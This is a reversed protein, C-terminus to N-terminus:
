RFLDPNAAVVAAALERQGRLNPHASFPKRNGTPTIPNIWMGPGRERCMGHGVFRTGLGVFRFGQHRHVAQAITDDLLKGARNLLKADDTDIAGCGQIDKAPAFLQPYGLVIVTAEPARARIKWYTEDLKRGLDALKEGNRGFRESVAESCQYTLCKEVIKAFAMDNGGITLTILTTREPIHPIQLRLVEDTTDGQCALFWKPGSLREALQRGALLRSYAHRNRSCDKERGPPQGDFYHYEFALAQPASAPFYGDGGLGSSYSDGLAVFKPEAPKANKCRPAGRLFGDTFTKVTSDPIFGGRPLRVWIRSGRVKQGLTQCAIGVWQNDEVATGLSNGLAPKSQPSQAETSRYLHSARWRKHSWVHRPFPLECTPSGQLRSDTYTKFRSDPVFGGVVGVWLRRGASTDVWRQCDIHLWSHKAIAVGTRGAAANLERRVAYGATVRYLREAKWPELTRVKTGGGGGGDPTTAPAAPAPAAGMLGALLGAMLWRFM